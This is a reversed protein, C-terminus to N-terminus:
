PMMRRIPALKGEDAPDLRLDFPPLLAPDPFLLLLSPFPSLRFRLLPVRLSCGPDSAVARSWQHGETTNPSLSSSPDLYMAM